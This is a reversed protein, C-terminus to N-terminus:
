DGVRGSHCGAAFITVSTAAIAAAVRTNRLEVGPMQLWKRAGEVLAELACM